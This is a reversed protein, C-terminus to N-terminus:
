IWNVFCFLCRFRFFASSNFYFRLINEMKDVEKVSTREGNLLVNKIKHELTAASSLRKVKDHFILKFVRDHETLWRDSRAM